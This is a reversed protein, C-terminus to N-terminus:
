WSTGGSIPPLLAVEDGDKLLTEKPAYENDVAVSV